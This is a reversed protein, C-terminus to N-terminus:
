GPRTAAATAAAPTEGRTPPGLRATARSRLASERGQHTAKWRTAKGRRRCGFSTYVGRGGVRSAGGNGPIGAVLCFALINVVAIRSSRAESAKNSPLCRQIFSTSNYLSYLFLYLNQLIKNNNNNKKNCNKWSVFARNVYFFINSIVYSWFSEFSHNEVVFLMRRVM